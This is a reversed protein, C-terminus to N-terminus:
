QLLKGVGDDGPEDSSNSGFFDLCTEYLPSVASERVGRLESSSESNDAVGM